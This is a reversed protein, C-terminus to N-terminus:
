AAAGGGAPAAAAAAANAGAAAAAAAANALNARYWVEKAFGSYTDANNLAHDLSLDARLYPQDLEMFNPRLYSHDDTRAYKHTAEHLYVETCFTASRNLFTQTNLHVRYKSEGDWFGGGVYGDKGPIPQFKVEQAGNIGERTRHYKQLALAHKATCAANGLHACRFYKRFLPEVEAFELGEVHLIWNSSTALCYALRAQLQARTGAPIEENAVLIGTLGNPGAWEQRHRWGKSPM